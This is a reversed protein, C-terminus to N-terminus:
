SLPALREVLLPVAARWDAVIGVDAADWIPADPDPNIALVTGAARVGVTHNFKGSAGISVYLRPAITRGTIGIQRSRPLWGRDTVKRTAGFEAGLARRLAELADYEDPPVGTGIGIVADADALVEIDDERTRALVRVRGGPELTITEYTFEQRGARPMLKPMVGARVTAMQVPSDCGIAAVLQGGFAPKWAILRGDTVDLEVADGTLGADLQAAVRAAVERGWATSQALIAWPNEDRALSGVAGAVDEEVNEGVLHVIEDAGWGTLVEPDPETVTVALVNGTLAAAAGLLERTGHERNPEALVMVLPAGPRSPPVTAAPAVRAGALAGREVLATLARDVQEDLSADPWRHRARDVAIVKVPGVWTPSGAQGWPGAGLDGAGIRVIRAAPVAARGPPDVKTPECLREACSLIAPLAVEAQLWGDDHECRADVKIDDVALYRVGTLFPLDLLQAVEPGVQGTDADVSNRGTLVLDFPGHRTLAAALAKATALTDSGAFATDTVHVGCIDVERDLGWAIAERLSDDAAPPGLTFVTVRSGPREVALECAKSVARRCYPNLELEIGDRRLRGDEGLEIEEFKPIQKVLVALRM